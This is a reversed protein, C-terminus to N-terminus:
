KIEGYREAKEFVEPTISKIYDEVDKKSDFPKGLDIRQLKGKENLVLTTVGFVKKDLFEGQSKEILLTEDGFKIHTYDYAEPTIFNGQGNFYFDFYKRETYGLVMTIEEM